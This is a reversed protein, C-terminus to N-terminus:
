SAKDITFRMNSSAKTYTKYVDPLANKLATQDLRSSTVLKWRIMWDGSNFEEKEAEVLYEQIEVEIKSIQAELEKIQNKLEKIKNARNNVQIRTMM